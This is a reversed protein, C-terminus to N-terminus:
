YLALSLVMSSQHNVIPHNMPHNVISADLWEIQRDRACDGISHVLAGIEPDGIFREIM